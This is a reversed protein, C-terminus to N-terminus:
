EERASNPPAIFRAYGISAIQRSQYDKALYKTVYYSAFVPSLTRRRKRDYGGVLKVKVFGHQWQQVLDKHLIKEGVEHLLWHVHPWGDKHREMAVIYKFKMGAKRLRKFFKQLEHVIVKRHLRFRENCAPDDWWDPIASTSAVQAWEERARALTVARAEPGLTLTGFWTRLGADMTAQTWHIAARLWYGMRARLCSKCRRCRVYMDALLAGRDAVRRIPGAPAECNGAYDVFWEGPRAGPATKGAIKADYIKASLEGHDAPRPAKRPRRDQPRHLRGCPCVSEHSRDSM